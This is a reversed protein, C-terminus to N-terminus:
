VNKSLLEDIRNIRAREDKDFKLDDETPKTWVLAHEDVEPVHMMKCKQYELNARRIAESLHKNESDRELKSLIPQQSNSM